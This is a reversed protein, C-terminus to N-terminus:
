KILEPNEYINGIIEISEFGGWHLPVWDAFYFCAHYDIWVVQRDGVMHESHKYDEFPVLRCIDGEYIEKGNRDKLGTYQQVVLRLCDINWDYDGNALTPYLGGQSDIRVDEVWRSGSTSWVRFKIERNM